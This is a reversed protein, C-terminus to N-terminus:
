RCDSCEIGQDNAEEDIAANRNGVQGLSNPSAIRLEALTITM